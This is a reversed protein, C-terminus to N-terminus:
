SSGSVILSRGAGVGPEPSPQHRRRRDAGSCTAMHRATFLIITHGAARLSRIKDAAGPVPEVDAYSQGDKKLQAVVGDLDICVKM